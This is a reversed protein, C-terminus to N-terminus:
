RGVLPIRAFSSVGYTTAEEAMWGASVALLLAVAFLKPLFTLTMEHVQTVAQFVSVATGVILTVFLAPGGLLLVMWLAERGVLTAETLTM